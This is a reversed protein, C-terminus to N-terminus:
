GVEPITRSDDLGLDQLFCSANEHAFGALLMARKFINKRIM